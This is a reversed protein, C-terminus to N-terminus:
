HRLKGSIRINLFPWSKEILDKEGEFGFLVAKSSFTGIYVPNFSKNKKM